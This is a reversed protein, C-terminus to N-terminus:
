RGLYRKDFDQSTVKTMSVTGDPGVYLTPRYSSKTPEYLSRTDTRDALSRAETSTEYRKEM